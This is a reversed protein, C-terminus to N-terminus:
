TEVVPVGPSAPMVARADSPVVGLSNRPRASTGQTAPVEPKEQTGHATPVVVDATPWLEHAAQGAPCVVSAAPAVVQTQAAFM